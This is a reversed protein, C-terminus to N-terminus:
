QIAACEAAIDAGEAFNCYAILIGKPWGTSGSSHITAADDNGIRDYFDRVEALRIDIESSLTRNESRNHTYRGFAQM